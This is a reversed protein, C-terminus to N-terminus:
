REKLWDTKDDTTQWTDTQWKDLILGILSLEFLFLTVVSLSVFALRGNTMQWDYDSSDVPQNGSVLRWWNVLSWWNVLLNLELLSQVHQLEVGLLMFILAPPFWSPDNIVKILSSSLLSFPKHGWSPFQHVPALTFWFMLKMGWHSDSQCFWNVSLRTQIGHSWLSLVRLPCPEVEKVLSSCDESKWVCSFSFFVPGFALVFSARSLSHAASLSLSFFFFFSWDRVSLM